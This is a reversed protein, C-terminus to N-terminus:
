AFSFGEKLVSSKAIWATIGKNVKVNRNGAYFKLSWIGVLARGTALNLYLPPDAM